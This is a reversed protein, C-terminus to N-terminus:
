DISANVGQKVEYYIHDTDSKSNLELCKSEIASKEGFDVISVTFRKRQLFNEILFYTDTIKNM